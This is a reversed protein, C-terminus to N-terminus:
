PNKKNKESKKQVGEEEEKKLLTFADFRNAINCAGTPEM